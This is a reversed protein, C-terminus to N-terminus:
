RRYEIYSKRISGKRYHLWTKILGDTRNSMQIKDIIKIELDLIDHNVDRTYYTIRKVKSYNSGIDM